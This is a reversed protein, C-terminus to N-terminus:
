SSFVVAMLVGILSFLIGFVFLVYSIVADVWSTLYTGSSRMKMAFLAPFTMSLTASFLAGLLSVVQAVDPLFVALVTAAASLILGLKIRMKKPIKPTKGDSIFMFAAQRAPFLCFIFSIAASFCCMLQCVMMLSDTQSDYESLINGSTLHPFTWCGFLGLATYFITTVTLALFISWLVKRGTKDHLDKIVAMVNTQVEYSFVFIPAVFMYPVLAIIHKNTFPGSGLGGENTDVAAGPVPNFFRYAVAFIIFVTFLNSVLGNTRLSALRSNFSLPAIMVASLLLFCSGGTSSRLWDPLFTMRGVVIPTISDKIFSLYVVSCGFSYFFLIGRICWKGKAGLFFSAVTEFDDSDASISALTLIRVSIFTVVICFLTSLLCFQWGGVAYALPVSLMTPTSATTILSLAGSLVGDGPCCTELLSAKMEDLSSFTMNDFFISTNHARMNKWEEVTMNHSNSTDETAYVNDLLKTTENTTGSM